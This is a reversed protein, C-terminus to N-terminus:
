SQIHVTGVWYFVDDKMKQPLSENLNMLKSQLNECYHKAKKFPLKEGAHTNFHGSCIFSVAQECSMQKLHIRKEDTTAALCDIDNDKLDDSLGQEYKYVNVYNRDNSGCYMSDTYDPCKRHCRNSWSKM